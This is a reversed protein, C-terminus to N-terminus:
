GPRSRHGKGSRPQLPCSGRAQSGGWRRRRPLPPGTTDNGQATTQGSGSGTKVDRRRGTRTDEGVELEMWHPMGARTWLPVRVPKARAEKAERELDNAVLGTGLSGTRDRMRIDTSGFQHQHVHTGRGQVQVRLLGGGEAREGRPLGKGGGSRSKPRADESPELDKGPQNGPTM